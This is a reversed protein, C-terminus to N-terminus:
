KLVGSDSIEPVFARLHTTFLRINLQCMALTMQSTPVEILLIVEM